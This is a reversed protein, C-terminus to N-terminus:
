SQYSKPGTFPNAPVLAESTGDEEVVWKAAISANIVLM